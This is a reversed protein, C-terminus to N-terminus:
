FAVTEYRNQCPYGVALDLSRAVLEQRHRAFHLIKPDPPPLGFGSERLILGQQRGMEAYAGRLDVRHM